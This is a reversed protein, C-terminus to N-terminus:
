PAAVAAPTASLWQAFTQHGRQADPGPLITGDRLARGQRGPLPVSPVWGRYGISAAYRRVMDDLREERPGALDTARGQPRGAAISVLHAGVEAAAIPQVRGKPALHLPGLRGRDFLQASFEHFQTARLITAPVAGAEVVREQALKGAYYDYPARDVGVISLLVLHAVRRRAAAALLTGTATEFFRTAVDAKLTTINSLDIVADVGELAADVGEGTLLDVGRSRALVVPTHGAARVAEVTPRGVVGTGGAVAITM